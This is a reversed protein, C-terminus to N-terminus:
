MNHFYADYVDLLDQDHLASRITWGDDELGARVAKAITVAGPSDGHVCVSQIGKRALWVAQAAAERPDHILAGPLSRDRLRDGDYAREAFGETISSWQSGPMMLLPLGLKRAAKVVADSQPGGSLVVHYLAGHPKIYKVRTGEALCLGDLASTQWLVQAYLDAPSTDLKRRGFGDRDEFSVHAGITIDRAAAIRVVPATEAPSGAHGGCAINASTIYHMLGDDDFGEGVDANLDVFRRAPCPSSEASKTKPLPHAWEKFGRMLETTRPARKREVKEFRNIDAEQQRLAEIADEASIPDFQVLDGPRMQGLCWLDVGSVVAPIRYGGTAQHEALLMVPNGDPPVQIAGRPVGETLTQGGEPRVIRGQDQGVPHSTSPPNKWRLRIGMRDSAPEVTYTGGALASLSIQASTQAEEETASDVCGPGALVRIKWPDDPKRLRLPDYVSKQGVAESYAAYRSLRQEQQLLAGIGARVDTSRSGLVTPTAIGGSVCVYARAGDRSAGLELAEGKRLTVVCNPPVSQVRTSDGTIKADCDAGTVAISCNALAVMKLGGFTVELGAADSVNCLLANGMRLALPDAAGSVSVGHCGYGHRGLDQVTTLIGERRIEVWPVEELSSYSATSNREASAQGLQASSAQWLTEGKGWANESSVAESSTHPVFQVRDGAKLLAPPDRRPDFLTQQTRGIIQWGGPSTITYIGTQGGAVAVSGADVQQRPTALRPVRTLPDPLGGLYPFGGMFGVFHVRYQVSTHLSVVEEPSMETMSAVTSLDPGFRDGYEVRLKVLKGDEMAVDTPLLSASSQLIQRCSSVIDNATLQLPDFRVLLSSYAPILDLVGEMKKQQLVKMLRLASQNASTDLLYVHTIISLSTLAFRM